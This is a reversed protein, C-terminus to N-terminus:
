KKKGACHARQSFGKPNNCDISDKYKKSWGEAVVSQAKKLLLRLMTILKMKMEDSAKGKSQLDKFDAIMKTARSIQKALIGDVGTYFRKAKTKPPTPDSRYNGLEDPRAQQVDEAVETIKGQMLEHIKESYKGFLDKIILAQDGADASAFQKRVETASKMPKGMLNFKFTPVTTIYGHQTLNELKNKDSSMPQFYSPSGDKKPNFAFRPDEDMDKQSVAFVLITNDPDVNSTVEQAQYPNKVQKIRASPVGVHNMIQKKEAFSFPSKPPDVKDSTVIYVNNVGYESVLYDYVMKHGKHFPHFRGPYLVLFQKEQEQLIQEIQMNFKDAHLNITNILNVYARVVM